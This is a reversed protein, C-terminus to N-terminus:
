HYLAPEVIRRTTEIHERMAEGAAHGDRRRLCDLIGRHQENTQAREPESFIVPVRLLWYYFHTRKHFEALLPNDAADVIRQHFLTNLQNLQQRENSGVRDMQEILEALSDMTAHTMREAALRATAAEIAARSEFITGIHAANVESVVWGRRRQVYGQGQLILLAERLPTRGVNLKECLEEEIIRMGSKLEGGLMMSLIRGYLDPATSANTLLREMPEGGLV